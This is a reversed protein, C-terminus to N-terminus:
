LICCHRCLFVHSVAVVAYMCIYMYISYTCTCQIDCQEPGHVQIYTFVIVYHKFLFIHFSLVLMRVHVHVYMYYDFACYQIYITEMHLICIHICTFTCQSVLVKGDCVRRFGEDFAMFPEKVAEDLVYQVYARVYEMRNERTVAVSSGGAILPVTVVEGFSSRTLQLHVCVTCTYVYMYVNYTHVTHIWVYVYYMYQYMQIHVDCDTLVPIHMRCLTYADHIWPSMHM